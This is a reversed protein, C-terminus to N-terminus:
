ALAVRGRLSVCSIALFDHRRCTRLAAGLFGEAEDGLHALIYAGVAAGDKLIEVQVLRGVAVLDGVGEAPGRNLAGSPVREFRVAIRENQLSPERCGFLPADTVAVMSLGFYISADRSDQCSKPVRGKQVLGVKQKLPSALDGPVYLVFRLDCQRVIYFSGIFGFNGLACVRSIL